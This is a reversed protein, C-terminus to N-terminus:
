RRMFGMIKKFGVPRKPRGIANTNERFMHLRIIRKGEALRYFDSEKRTLHYWGNEFEASVYKVVRDRYGYMMIMDDWEQGFCVYYGESLHHYIDQYVIDLRANKGEDELFYKMFIYIFVDEKEFFPSDQIGKKNIYKKMDPSLIAKTFVMQKTLSKVNEEIYLKCM